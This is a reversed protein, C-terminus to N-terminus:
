PAGFNTGELKLAESHEVRRKSRACRFFGKTLRHLETPLRRLHVENLILVHDLCGHRISGIVRELGPCANM